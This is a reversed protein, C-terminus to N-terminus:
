LPNVKSPLNSLSLSLHRGVMGFTSYNIRTNSLFNGEKLTMNKLICLLLHTQSMKLVKKISCTM